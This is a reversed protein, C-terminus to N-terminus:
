GEADMWGPETTVGGTLRDRAIVATALQDTAAKRVEKLLGEYEFQEEELRGGKDLDHTCVKRENCIRRIQAELRKIWQERTTL